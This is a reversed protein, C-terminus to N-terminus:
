YYEYYVFRPKGDECVVGVPGAPVDCTSMIGWKQNYIDEQEAHYQVLELFYDVDIDKAYAIYGVPGGCAKSGYATWSWDEYNVCERQLSLAQIEEFLGALIEDDRERSTWDTIEGWSNGIQECGLLCAPYRRLPLTRAGQARNGTRSTACRAPCLGRCQGPSGRGCQLM